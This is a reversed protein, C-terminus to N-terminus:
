KGRFLFGILIGEDDFVEFQRPRKTKRITLADKKRQWPQLSADHKRKMEVRQAKSEAKSM